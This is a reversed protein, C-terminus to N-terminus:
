FGVFKKLLDYLVKLGLGKLTAKLARRWNYAIATKLHVWRYEKVVKRVAKPDGTSHAEAFEDYYDRVSQDYIHLKGLKGYIWKALSDCKPRTLQKVQNRSVKKGESDETPSSLVEIAKPALVSIFVTLFLLAYDIEGRQFFWASLLTGIIPITWYAAIALKKLSRDGKHM